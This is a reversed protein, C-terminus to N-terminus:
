PERRALKRLQRAPRHPGSGAVKLDANLQTSRRSWVEGVGARSLRQGVQGSTALEIAKQSARFLSPPTYKVHLESCSRGSSCSFPSGSTKALYPCVQVEM